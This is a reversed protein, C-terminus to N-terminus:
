LCNGKPVDLLAVFLSMTIVPVTALYVMVCQCHLIVVKLLTASLQEVCQLPVSLLVATHLHKQLCNVMQADLLAVFLSMM